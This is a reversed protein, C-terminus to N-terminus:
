RFDTEGDVAAHNSFRIVVSIWRYVVREEIKGSASVCVDLNAADGVIM